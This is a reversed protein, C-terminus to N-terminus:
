YEENIIAMNTHKLYIFNYLKKLETNNVELIFRIDGDNIILQKKTTLMLRM